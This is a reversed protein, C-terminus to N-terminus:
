ANIELNIQSQLPATTLTSPACETFDETGVKLALLIAMEQWPENSGQAWHPSPLCVPYTQHGESDKIHAPPQGTLHFSVRKALM